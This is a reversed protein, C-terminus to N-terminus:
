FDNPAVLFDRAWASVFLRPDAIPRRAAERALVELFRHQQPESMQQVLRKIGEEEFLSPHLLGLTVHALDLLHVLVGGKLNGLTGVVDGLHQHTRHQAARGSRRGAAAQRRRQRRLWLQRPALLM